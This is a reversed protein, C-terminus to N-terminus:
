RMTHVPAKSFWCLATLRSSSITGSVRVAIKKRSKRAKLEARM